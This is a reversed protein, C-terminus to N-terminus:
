AVELPPWPLMNLPPSLSPPIGYPIEKLLLTVSQGIYPTNPPSVSMSSIGMPNLSSASPLLIPVHPGCSTHKAVPKAGKQQVNWSESILTVGQQKETPTRWDARCLPPCQGCHQTHSQSQVLCSISTQGMGFYSCMLTQLKLTRM